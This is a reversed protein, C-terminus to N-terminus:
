AVQDVADTVADPDAAGSPVRGGTVAGPPPDVCQEFGPLAGADPCLDLGLQLRLVILLAFEASVQDNVGGGAPRMDM